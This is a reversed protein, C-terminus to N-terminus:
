KTLAKNTAARGGAPKDAQLAACLMAAVRDIYARDARGGIIAIRWYPASGILDNAIDRDVAEHLEGRAIAREILAQSRERRAAQFPRISAKLEPSRGIEAHLDLLIRRIKPHRLVRRISLLVARLDGLLSGTDPAETITIGVHTLAESVMAAKSPWRRYLAAKGVGARKAVRELSLAAYGTNAWEEFLASTLAETVRVQPVAAGTPRRRAALSHTQDSRKREM